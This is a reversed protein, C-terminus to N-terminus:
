IPNLGVFARLKEFILFTIITHPGLRLWSPILGKYFGGVGESRFIIKYTQWTARYTLKTTSSVNENMMRTRAVDMPNIAFATIFGATFSSVLHLFLGEEFHKQRM